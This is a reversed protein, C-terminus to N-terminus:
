PALQILGFTLHLLTPNFNWLNKKAQYNPFFICFFNLTKSKISQHIWLQTSLHICKYIGRENLLWCLFFDLYPYFFSIQRGQCCFNNTGARSWSYTLIQSPDTLLSVQAQTWHNTVPTSRSHLQALHSGSSSCFYRMQGVGSRNLALAIEAPTLRPEHGWALVSSACTRPYPLRYHGLDSHQRPVGLFALFM